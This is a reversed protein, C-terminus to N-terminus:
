SPDKLYKMVMSDIKSQDFEFRKASALERNTFALREAIICYLLILIKNGSKPYKKIFNIIIEAKIKLVRVSENATVNAMSKSNMFLGAEGLIDSSGLSCIFCRKDDRPNTVSVDVYGDLIIFLNENFTNSSILVEDDEYETIVSQNIIEDRENEQLYKFLPINQIKKTLLADDYEIERM